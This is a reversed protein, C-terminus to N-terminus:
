ALGSETKSPSVGFRYAADGIRIVDDPKLMARTIREGNLLTGNRSKDEIWWAASQSVWVIRAHQASAFTDNVRILCNPDRGMWAGSILTYTRAPRTGKDTAVVSIETLTASMPTSTEGGARSERVLYLLVVGLFAYLAVALVIRLAFLLYEM